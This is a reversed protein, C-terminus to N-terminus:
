IQDSPPIYNPNILSIPQEFDIKVDEDFDSNGKSRALHPVVGGQNEQSEDLLNPSTEDSCGFKELHRIRKILTNRKKEQNQNCLSKDNYKDLLEILLKELIKSWVQLNTDDLYKKERRLTKLIREVQEISFLGNCQSGSMAYHQRTRVFNKNRREKTDIKSNKSTNLNELTLDISLKLSDTIIREFDISQKDGEKNKQDKSQLLYLFAENLIDIQDKYYEEEARICSMETKTYMIDRSLAKLQNKLEEEDGQNTENVASYENTSQYVIEDNVTNEFDDDMLEEISSRSRLINNSKLTVVDQEAEKLNYKLAEIEKEILKNTSSYFQLTEEDTPREDEDSHRPFYEPFKSSLSKSKVLAKKM